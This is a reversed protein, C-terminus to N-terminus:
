NPALTKTYILCRNTDILKNSLSRYKKFSVLKLENCMNEIKTISKIHQLRFKICKRRRLRRAESKASM